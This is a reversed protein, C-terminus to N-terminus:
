VKRRHRGLQHAQWQERTIKIGYDAELWALGIDITLNRHNGADVIQQLLNPPVTQCVVCRKVKEAVLYDNLSRPGPSPRYPPHDDDGNM